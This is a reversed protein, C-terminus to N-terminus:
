QDALRLLPFVLNQVPMQPVGSDEAQQVPVLSVMLAPAYGRAAADDSEGEREESAHSDGLLSTDAYVIQSVVKSLSGCRAAPLVEEYISRLVEDRTLTQSADLGRAIAFDPWRVHMRAIQGRADVAVQLRSFAVPTGDIFRQFRVHGEAKFSEAGPERPDTNVTTAKLYRFSPAGLESSPVGFAEVARRALDITAAAPITTARKDASRDRNTYIVSGRTLNIRLGSGQASSYICRYSPDAGRFEDCCGPALTDGVARAAVTPNFADSLQAPAVQPALLRRMVDVNGVEAPMARRILQETEDCSQASAVLPTALALAILALRKMINM